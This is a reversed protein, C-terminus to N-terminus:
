RYTQLFLQAIPDDSRFSHIFVPQQMKKISDVIQQMRVNDTVNAIHFVKYPIGYTKLWGAEQENATKAEPEAPDSISVVQKFNTAVVYGIYEEKTPMPSLYNGDGLKHVKGREFSEVTDINRHALGKGMDLAGANEQEIIRRAVNVRDKGLYCHIYYKGKGNKVLNRFSDIASLNDSVWPLMPISIVEMKLEEATEKEDALLKPEFPVVAPHLLSVLATYGEEKLEQMKEETPYPGITFKTGIEEHKGGSENTMSPNMMVFLATLAAIVPIGIHLLQSGHGVGSKFAKKASYKALLFSIIALAAIFAFVVLKETTESWGNARAYDVTRRM